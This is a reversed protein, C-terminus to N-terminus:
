QENDRKDVWYDMERDEKFLAGFRSADEFTSFYGIRVRIERGGNKRTIYAPYGADLLEQFLADAKQINRYGAVQVTFQGNPDYIIARIVEDKPSPNYEDLTKPVDVKEDNSIFQSDKEQDIDLSDSTDLLVVESRSSIEDQYGLEDRTDVPDGCSFYSISLM